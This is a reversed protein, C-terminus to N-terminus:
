VKLQSAFKLITQTTGVIFVEAEDHSSFRTLLNTEIWSEHLCSCGLNIILKDFSFGVICSGFEFLKFSSKKGFSSSSAICISNSQNEGHMREAIAFCLDGAAECSYSKEDIRCYSIKM